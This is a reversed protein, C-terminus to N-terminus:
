DEGLNEKRVDIGTCQKFIDADFNPMSLVTQRGDDDLKYDWWQQRDCDCRRDKRLYGHLTKYEPHRKKDAASMSSEHIWTTSTRPMNILIARASSLLWQSKTWPSPKNFMRFEVYETNFCGVTDSGANFDGVNRMGFNYDGVNWSGTNGDGVNGYGTNGDGVNWSGVNRHGVNNSGANENGANNHGTNHSGVNFGDFNSNGVNRTGINYDGVNSTGSNFDGINVSGTNSFGINSNGENSCGINSDGTNGHGINSRGLDNSGINVIDLVEAWTLERVIELDTVCVKSCADLYEHDVMGRGIVECVHYSPDFPYYNFCDLARTCFHMGAVCIVAEDEHFRGPCTYQKRRCTWDPKFVKYGHIEGEIPKM